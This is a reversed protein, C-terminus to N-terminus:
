RDAFKRRCLVTSQCYSTGPLFTSSGNALDLIGISGNADAFVISGDPLPGCLVNLHQQLNVFQLAAGQQYDYVLLQQQLMPSSYVVVNSKHPGFAIAASQSEEASLQSALVHAQMICGVAQLGKETLVCVFDLCDKAHADIADTCQM